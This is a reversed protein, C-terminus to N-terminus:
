APAGGRPTSIAGTHIVSDASVSREQRRVSPLATALTAVLGLALAVFVGVNSTAWLEGAGIGLPAFLFGQWSLWSVEASTLGWGLATALVLIALNGWRVDPYHRGRELLSSADLRTSRFMMEAALIGVWASVPVAITIILDFLIEGPEVALFALAAAVLAVLVVALVTTSTRSARIGLSQIAFGGSYSALTAASILGIGVALVLPIPYWLPLLSALAGIPDLILAAGLAPDSAALLAGWAILAFAPLTAGFSSSLMAAGGWGDPRQYRALDGTSQAWALGVVSFVLAAGPVVLLWSGDGLTLATGFDLRPATLAIVGVILIVSAITSVLHVLALLGYGVVSVTAIVIVGVIIGLFTWLEVGLGPDVGALEVIHAASAAFLWLLAGGWFIRTALALVAPGLNGLHGFVARSVVMVPQGTWKGALTGFGLPIWSVAVGTLAAVIAQRLSMGSAALIAGVAISIVSANPAFWLWFLRVSRGARRDLPTPEIGTAEIEGARPVRRAQAALLPDDDAVRQVAIPESPPALVDAIGATGVAIPVSGTLRDVDDVVDDNEADLDVDQAIPSPPPVFARPVTRDDFEQPLPAVTGPLPESPTAEPAPAVEESSPVYPPIDAPEIGIPPPMSSFDLVPPLEDLDDADVDEAPETPMPAPMPPEIPASPPTLPPEVLEPDLVIAEPDPPPMPPRATPVEGSAPFAPPEVLLPPGDDVPAFRSVVPASADPPSAQDDPELAEDARLRPGGPLTVAGTALAEQWARFAEPDEERLRLQQELIEIAALTSSTGMVSDLDTEDGTIASAPSPEPEVLAVPERPIPLDHFSNPDPDVDQADPEFSDPAFSDPEFSDPESSFSDPEEILSGPVPEPAVYEPEPEPAPEPEPEPQDSEPEFDPLPLFEDNDDNDDNDNDNDDDDPLVPAVEASPVVPIPATYTSFQAALADAIADDDTLEPQENEVDSASAVGSTERPLPTFTSRRKGTPEADDVSDPEADGTGFPADTM